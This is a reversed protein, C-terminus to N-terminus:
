ASNENLAATIHAHDSASSNAAAQTVQQVVPQGAAIVGVAMTDLASSKAAAEKSKKKALLGSIILALSGGAELLGRIPVSYPNVPASADNITHLVALKNSITATDTVFQPNTISSQDAPPPQYNPNKTVCGAVAIAACALLITIKTKM